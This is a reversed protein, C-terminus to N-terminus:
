APAAACESGSMVSSPPGSESGSMVVPRARRLVNYRELALQWRVAAIAVAQDADCRQELSVRERRALAVGYATQAIRFEREAAAYEPDLSQIDGRM